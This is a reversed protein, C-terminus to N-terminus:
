CLANVLGIGAHLLAVGCLRRVVRAWERVMGHQDGGGHRRPSPGQRLPIVRGCCAGARFVLMNQQNNIIRVASIPTKFILM